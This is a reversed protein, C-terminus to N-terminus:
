FRYEYSLVPYPIGAGDFSYIFAAGTVLFGRRGLPWQYAVVTNAILEGHAMQGISTSLMLGKENYHRQYAIGGGLVEAGLGGTIYLSFNRGVIVDKTIGILNANRSTGLGVNISWTRPRPDDASEAASNSAVPLDPVEQGALMLAVVGMGRTLMDDIEGRLDFDSVNLLKGTEVDVLRASVSFTQGVKSVSGGVMQSAGLLKGVEVLCENSTCGAMQFDQEALINEMMGRDVVEFTELRFLENRLRNTLAIAETPSIGFADFDLVAVTIAQGSDALQRVSPTRQASIFTTMLLAMMVPALMLCNKGSRRRNRM